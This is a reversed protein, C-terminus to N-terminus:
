AATKQKSLFEAAAKLRNEIREAPIELSAALQQVTEGALYRRYIEVAFPECM